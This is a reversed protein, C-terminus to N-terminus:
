KNRRTTEGHRRRILGRTRKTLEINLISATNRLYSIEESSTRNVSRSDYKIRYHSSGELLPVSGPMAGFIQFRECLGESYIYWSKESGSEEYIAKMKIVAGSKLKVSVKARKLEKLTKIFVEWETVRMHLFFLLGVM